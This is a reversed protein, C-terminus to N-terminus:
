KGVMEKDLENLMERLETIGLETEESQEVGLENVIENISLGNNYLLDIANAILRHLRLKTM